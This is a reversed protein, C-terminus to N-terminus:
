ESGAVPSSAVITPAGNLSIRVTFPETVPKAFLARWPGGAAFDPPVPPYVVEGDATAVVVLLRSTATEPALPQGRALDVAGLLAGTFEQGQILPSVVYLVSDPRDPQVPVIRFAPDEQ